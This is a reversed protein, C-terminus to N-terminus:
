RSGLVVICSDDGVSRGGGDHGELFRFGKELVFLGNHYLSHFFWLCRVDILRSLGFLLDDVQYIVFHLGGDM